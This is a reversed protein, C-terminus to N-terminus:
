RRDLEIELQERARAHVDDVDASQHGLPEAVAQVGIWLRQAAREMRGGTIEVLSQGGPENMAAAAHHGVDIDEPGHERLAGAVLVVLNIAPGLQGLGLLGLLWPVGIRVQREHRAGQPGAHGVPVPRVLRNAEDVEVADVVAPGALAARAHEAVRVFLGHRLRADDHRYGPVGHVRDVQLIRPEADVLLACCSTACCPTWFPRMRSDSAGPSRLAPSVTLSYSVSRIRCSRESTRRSGSRNMTSFAPCM